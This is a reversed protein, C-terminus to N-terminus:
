KQMGRKEKDMWNLSLFLLAGGTKEFAELGDVVGPQPSGGVQASREGYYGVRKSECKLKAQSRFLIDDGFKNIALAVLDPCENGM